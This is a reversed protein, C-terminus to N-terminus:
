NYKKQSVSKKNSVKDKFTFVPDGASKFHLNSFVVAAVLCIISVVTIYEARNEMPITCATYWTSGDSPPKNGPLCTWDFYGEDYDTPCLYKRRQM